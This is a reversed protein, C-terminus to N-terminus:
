GEEPVAILMQEFGEQQHFTYGHRRLFDECFAMVDDGHTSLLMRPRRASSFLAEGGPLALVEAGEIDMKIVDPAGHKAVMEDLTTGRVDIPEGQEIVGDLTSMLINPMRRLVVSGVKDGVAAQEIQVNRIANLALQDEIITVAEPIPEFAIVKGEPGVVRAAKLTHYGANAGVDWFVDGPRLHAEILNSVHPEYLGLHYWFSVGTYRRWRFGKMPGLRIRHVRGEGFKTTAWRFAQYAGPVAALAAKREWLVRAADRITMM